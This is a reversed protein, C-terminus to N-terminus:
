RPLRATFRAPPEAHLATTRAEVAMAALAQGHLARGVRAYRPVREIVLKALCLQRRLDMVRAGSAFQEVDGSTSVLESALVELTLEGSDIVNRLLTGSRSKM